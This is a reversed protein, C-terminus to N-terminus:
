LLRETLSQKMKRLYPLSGLESLLARLLKEIARYLKFSAPRMFTPLFSAVYYYWAGINFPSYSLSLALADKWLDEKYNEEFLARGWQLHYESPLVLRTLMPMKLKQPNLNGKNSGAAVDQEIESFVKAIMHFSTYEGTARKWGAQAIARRETEHNLYYIIKDTMEEANEFCVIEKDIDFYKETGPAYETLLFGGAMCVQFVRGKVQKEWRQPGPPGAKSFNLNIKSAGFIDLMQDFSVYGGSGEGFSYVPINRRKLKDIYQKRDTFDISGVFSVEYREEINLWDRNVAIGTNPITQIVQAGLDKYKPVAEIANTVCYDLYPVWYKSYSNFRWEDDFFWGVVISGEERIIELTSEQIDYQWSTWLVYKAHERRLLAIIEENMAKIGIEARRNLYDYLIVKSFINQLPEYLYLNFPLYAGCYNKAYKLSRHNCDEQNYYYILLIITENIM